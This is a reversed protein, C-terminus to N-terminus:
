MPFMPIRYIDLKGKYYRGHYYKGDKINLCIPGPSDNLVTDEPHIYPERLKVSEESDQDYRIHIGEWQSSIGKNDIKQHPTKTYVSSM